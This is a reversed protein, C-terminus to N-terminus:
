LYNTQRFQTSLIEEQICHHVTMSGLNLYQQFYLNQLEGSIEHLGSYISHNSCSDSYIKKRQEEMVQLSAKVCFRYDYNKLM